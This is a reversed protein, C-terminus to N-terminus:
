GREFLKSKTDQLTDHFSTQGNGNWLGLFCSAHALKFSHGVSSVHWLDKSNFLIIQWSKGMNAGEPVKVTYVKINDVGRSRLQKTLVGISTDSRYGFNGCLSHLKPM